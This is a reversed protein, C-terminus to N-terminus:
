TCGGYAHTDHQFFETSITRGIYPELLHFRLSIQVYVQTFNHTLVVQVSLCVSLYVSLRPFTPSTSNICEVCSCTSVCAGFLIGLSAGHKYQALWWRAFGPRRWAVLCTLGYYTRCLPGAQVNVSYVEVYIIYNQECIYRMKRIDHRYVTHLQKFCIRQKYALLEDALWSISQCM